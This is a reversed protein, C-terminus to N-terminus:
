GSDVDEVLRLLDTLDAHLKETDHDARSFKEEIEKLKQLAEPHSAFFEDHDPQKLISIGERIAKRLKESEEHPDTRPIRESM